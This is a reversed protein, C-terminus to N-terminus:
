KEKLGLYKAAAVKSRVNKPPRPEVLGRLWEQYEEESVFVLNKYGGKMSPECIGILTGPVEERLIVFLPVDLLEAIKFIQPAIRYKGGNWVNANKLRFGKFSYRRYELVAKPVDNLDFLICDIDLTRITPISSELTKVRIWDKRYEIHKM